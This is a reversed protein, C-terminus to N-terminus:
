PGGLIAAAISAAAARNDVQLKRLIRAVHNNVTYVSLDLEVAIEKNSRGLAIARLVEQERESLGRREGFTRRAVITSYREVLRPGPSAGLTDALRRKYGGFLARKM